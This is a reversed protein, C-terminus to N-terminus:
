QRMIEKIEEWTVDNLAPAERALREWLLRSSEVLERGSARTCRASGEDLSGLKAVAKGYRTIIVAEGGQEIADLLSSLSTKAELVGVERM